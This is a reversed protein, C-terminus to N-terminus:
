PAIKEITAQGNAWQKLQELRLQGREYYLTDLSQLHRAFAEDRQSEWDGSPHVLGLRVLCDFVEAAIIQHGHITPHVHDAMLSEDPIGDRCEREFRARIDIWPTDTSRCTEALIAHMSELMRLPCIDRDKAFVYHEAAQKADGLADYCQALQYHLGAHADDIAAARELSEVAHPLDADYSNRAQQWLQQWAEQQSRSLGSAHESKFPPCDRLNSVPNVMLLPVGADGAFWIMRQPNAQFHRQVERSWREDRHYQALGGRYDLIADVEGALIPRHGRPAKDGPSQIQLAASRLLCFTRLRSVIGLVTAVAPTRGKFAQYTRDELFENHGTYVVILDPEYCLVEQLVPVLRYSAYSVGGCNIVRWRRSPQAQNLSIELWTTFSTETSYPRGQVTSGGLCFIRFEDPRKNADFAQPRFYNQRAPPIEFRDGSANKVFLPRVSQFGILPDDQLEPRGLGFAALLLELLFFPLIGLTVAALRFGWRRERSAPRKTLSTTTPEEDLKM